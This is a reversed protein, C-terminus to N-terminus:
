DDEGTGYTMEKIILGGWGGKLLPPLPLIIM